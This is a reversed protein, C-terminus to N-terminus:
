TRLVFMTTPNFRKSLFFSPCGLWVSATIFPYSVFMLFGLIKFWLVSLRSKCLPQNWFYKPIVPSRIEDRLFGVTAWSHCECWTAVFIRPKRHWSFGGHHRNTPQITIKKAPANCIVFRRGKKDKKQTGFGHPLWVGFPNFRSAVGGRADHASCSDL